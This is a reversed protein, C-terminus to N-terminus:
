IQLSALKIFNDADLVGNALRKLHEQLKIDGATVGELYGRKFIVNILRIIDGGSLEGMIAMLIFETYDQLNHNKLHTYIAEHQDKTVTIVPM